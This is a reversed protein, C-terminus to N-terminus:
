IIIFNRLVVLVAIFGGWGIFTTIIGVLMENAKLAEEM